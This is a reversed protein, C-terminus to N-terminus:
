SDQPFTKGAESMEISRLASKGRRVAASKGLAAVWKTIGGYWRGHSAAEPYVKVKVCMDMTAAVTDIRGLNYPLLANFHPGTRAGKPLNKAWRGYLGPFGVVDPRVTNTIRVEGRVRYGATSEVWVQDRDMIGKAAATEANMLINPGLKNGPMNQIDTLVPNGVTTSFTHFPVKCNVAFLDYERREDV